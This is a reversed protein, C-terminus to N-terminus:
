YSIVRYIEELSTTGELVTEIGRQQLTSICNTQFYNILGTNDDNLIIEKLDNNMTLVEHIALRGMYGHTCQKCQGAKYIKKTFNFKKIIPQTPHYPQKCASCLKRALRQATILLISSTINYPAIGMNRLRTIAETASNTHLTSLVLHGTQAAKIAIEATELDRIEGVMMIDPDQRLFARLASAFTLGTKNNVNVQNIGDLNIEVPDEVTSTNKEITNLYKLAAYLTVTKGSGTPGTVLILGQPKKIASYFAKEQEETFGLSNIPRTNAGSNLLRLVIKEGYLMPCSNVRIDINENSNLQIKYRGDQPIRKESIDLKAIIKLRAAVRQALPAPLTTFEYLIGDQRFRIRCNKEYAEFHIDSAKKQIAVQITENVFRILPEDNETLTEFHSLQSLDVSESSSSLTAQNQQSSLQQIIKEIEDYRAIIINVKLNTYFRVINISETNAPNAILIDITSQTIKYPLLKLDAILEYPLTSFPLSDREIQSLDVVPLQFLLKMTQVIIEPTFIKKDISYELLSQFNLKAAKRYEIIKILDLINNDLLYEEFTNM